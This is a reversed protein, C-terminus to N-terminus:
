RLCELEEVYRKLAPGYVIGNCTMDSAMDKLRQYIDARREIQLIRPVESPITVHGEPVAEGESYNSFRNVIVRIRGNSGNMIEVHTGDDTTAVLTM